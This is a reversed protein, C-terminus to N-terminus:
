YPNPKPNPILTPDYWPFPDMTWGVPVYQSWITSTKGKPTAKWLDGSFKYDAGPLEFSPDYVAPSLDDVTGSCGTVNRNFWSALDKLYELDSAVNCHRFNLTCDSPLAGPYRRNIWLAFAQMKVPGWVEKGFELAFDGNTDTTCHDFFFVDTVKYGLNMLSVLIGAIFTDPSSVNMDFNLYYTLGDKEYVFDDAAEKLQDGGSLSTGGVHGGDYFAVKIPIPSGYNKPLKYPDHALGWPDLFSIPNNGCYRYMNMGDGYGIPDTQLFRGIEPNYYRARYYYLGTDKDFERGTFM